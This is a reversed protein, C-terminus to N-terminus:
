AEALHVSQIINIYVVVIITLGIIFLDCKIPSTNWHLLCSGSEMLVDNDTTLRKSRCAREKVEDKVLEKDMTNPKSDAMARSFSM